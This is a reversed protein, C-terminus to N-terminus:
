HVNKVHSARHQQPLLYTVVEALHLAEVQEDIQAPLLTLQTSVENAEKVVCERLVPQRLVRRGVVRPGEDLCGSQWYEETEKHDRVFMFYTLGFDRVLEVDLQRLLVQLLVIPVHETRDYPQKYISLFPASRNVVLSHQELEDLVVELFQLSEEFQV